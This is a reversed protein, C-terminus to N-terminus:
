EPQYVRVSEPSVGCHRLLTIAHRKADGAQYHTNVYLPGNELTAFPNSIGARQIYRSATFWTGKPAPVYLRTKM